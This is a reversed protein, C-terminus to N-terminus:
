MSLIDKMTDGHRIDADRMGIRLQCRDVILEGFISKMLLAEFVQPKQGMEEWIDTRNWSSNALTDLSLIKACLPENIAM